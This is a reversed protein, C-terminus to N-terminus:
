DPLQSVWPAAFQIRPKEAMVQWAVAESSDGEKTHEKASLSEKNTKFCCTM